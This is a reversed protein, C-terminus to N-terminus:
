RLLAEVEVRRFGRPYARLYDRAAQQMAATDGVAQLAVVRMYAADQARVDRPHRALFQEFRRAAEASRGANLSAMASRFDDAAEDAARPSASASGAVGASGAAGAPGAPPLARAPKASEVPAPPPEPEAVPTHAPAKWEQRAGIAIPARGRLRLLVSGEDVRVRTTRGDRVTVSFTTGIDELEGDPLVVLLPIPREAPAVRIQLEGGDLFVLDRQAETRRSWQAGPAASVSVSALAARPAPQEGRWVFVVAVIVVAAVAVLLSIRRTLGPGRDRESVLLRDFETLLRMRERRVSLEDRARTPARLRDALQELAAHERACVSCSALHREFAALEAGGIRGDRAAEVEFLRPCTPTM